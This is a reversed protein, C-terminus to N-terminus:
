PVNNNQIDRLLVRLPISNALNRSFTTIPQEAVFVIDNPRLEVADAVLVRLPNQADLSYAEVPDRGRLLYVVSRQATSTALPGNQAFLAEALTQRKEPQIPIVTPSVGGLLFVKGSQYELNQVFM